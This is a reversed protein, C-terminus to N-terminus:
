LPRGGAGGFSPRARFGRRIAGEEEGLSMAEPVVSRPFLSAEDIVPASFASCAAFAQGVAIM